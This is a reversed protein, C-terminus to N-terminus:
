RSHLPLGEYRHKDVTPFETGSETAPDVHITADALYKLQHLLEHRAEKAIAHGAEVSLGADVTISVEAHLRHGLWRVKVDTV